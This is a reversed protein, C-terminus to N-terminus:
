ALTISEIGDGMVSLMNAASKLIPNTRDTIPTKRREIKRFTEIFREAVARRPRAKGPRVQADLTISLPSSLSVRKIRWTLKGHSIQKLIARSSKVVVFFADLDIENTGKGSVSITLEEQAM